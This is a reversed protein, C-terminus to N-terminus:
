QGAPSPAAAGPEPQPEPAEPESRQPEPPPFITTTEHVTETHTVMATTTEVVTEKTEEEKKKEKDDEEKHEPEATETVTETVRETSTELRPDVAVAGDQEANKLKGVLGRADRILQHLLDLDGNTAASDMEELTGALQVAVPGEEEEGSFLAYGVGGVGAVVVLAAAAGVLGAGIPTSRWGRGGKARAARRKALEAVNSGSELDAVGDVQPAPAVVDDRLALLPGAAPDAGGTPDIGRALETVLQDDYEVDAPLPRHAGSIHGVRRVTRDNMSM